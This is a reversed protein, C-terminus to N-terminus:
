PAMPPLNGKKILMKSMKSHIFAPVDGLIPYNYSKLIGPNGTSTTNYKLTNNYPSDIRM